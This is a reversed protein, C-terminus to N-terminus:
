CASNTWLKGTFQSEKIYVYIAEPRLWKHGDFITLSGCPLPLLDKTTGFNATAKYEQGRSPDKQCFVFLAAAATCHHYCSKQAVLWSRTSSFPDTSTSPLSASFSVITMSSGVMKWSRVELYPLVRICLGINQFQWAYLLERLDSSTIGSANKLGLTTLVACSM